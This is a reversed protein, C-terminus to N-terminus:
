RGSCHQLREIWSQLVQGLEGGVMGNRAGNTRVASRQQHEGAAKVAIMAGAALDHVSKRVLIHKDVVDTLGSGGFFLYQLYRVCEDSKGPIRVAHLKVNGTAHIVGYM